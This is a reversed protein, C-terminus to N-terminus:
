DSDFIASSLNLVDLNIAFGFILLQIVPLILMLILTGKDRRMQIFEKKLLAKLRLPIM